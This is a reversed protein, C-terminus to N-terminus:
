NAIGDLLMWFEPLSVAVSGRAGEIHSPGSAALAAVTAAMAIRHDGFSSLRAGQLMGGKHLLWGDAHEEIRAGMRSLNEVTAAVRDSEKVRLEKADRLRM